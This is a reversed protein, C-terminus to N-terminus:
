PRFKVPISPSTTLRPNAEPVQDGLLKWIALGTGPLLEALDFDLYNRWGDGSEGIVETLLPKCRDVYVRLGWWLLARFAGGLASWTPPIWGQLHRLMAPMADPQTIALHLLFVEVDDPPILNLCDRALEARDFTLGDCLHEVLLRSRLSHLGDLYQGGGVKRLLYERELREVSRGLDPLGLLRSAQGADIRAGLSSAFSTVALLRLDAPSVGGSVVEDRLNQVQQRLREALTQTQTVLYVFELLPGEGGFQRWAEDFGLFRAARDRQALSPYLLRAEVEDFELAVDQFAVEAGSLSARRWDEERVTVLVRVLPLQGLERILEPWFRDGPQVDLYVTIPVGISKAHGSLAMAISLADRRNEIRRIQFRWLGIGYDHLYRYALASKGQGSAGRVIVVSAKDFAQGIRELWARRPIDCGALIHRYGAAM